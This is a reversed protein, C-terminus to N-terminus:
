GIVELSSGKDSGRVLIRRPLSDLLGQDHASVFAQEIGYHSGLMSVLHRGILARNHADVAALPEDLCAVSWASGRRAKLWAGGSFRVGIGALADMGGSKPTVECRFKQEIKQGRPAACSPCSRVKRSSPFPEGCQVCADALAPLERQWQFRVQLDVGAGALDENAANGVKALFGEVLRRQAGSPGLVQLAERHATIRPALAERAARTHGMRVRMADIGHLRRRLDAVQTRLEELKAEAEQSVSSADVDGFVLFADREAKFDGMRQRAYEIDSQIENREEVAERADRAAVATTAINKAVSDRTREAEALLLRACTADNNLQAKAPCEIGGVPCVGDFEGRALQRKQEVVDEAKNGEARVRALDGDLQAALVEDVKLEALRQEADRLAAAYEDYKKAREELRSRERQREKVTANGAATQELIKITYEADTLIQRASKEREITLDEDVAQVEALGCARILETRADAHLTAQQEDEANLTRLQDAVRACAKRVPEVGCWRIIDATVDSSEGNIFAAVEDQKCWWTSKQEHPSFGVLKDIEAQAQDGHLELQRGDDSAPDIKPLVVKVKTSSGRHRWRFVCTGDSLELDVSGEAEGDTLWEDETRRPHDGTLAFRIAWLFASKGQANSRRPDGDREALLAFIGRGLVVEHEGRYCLFNTLRIGTLYLSV